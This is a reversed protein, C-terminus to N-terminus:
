GFKRRLQWGIPLAPHSLFVSHIDKVRYCERQRIEVKFLHPNEAAKVATEEFVLFGRESRFTRLQRNRCLRWAKCKLWAVRARRDRNRRPIKGERSRKRDGITATETSREPM